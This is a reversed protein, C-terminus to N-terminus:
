KSVLKWSFHSVRTKLRLMHLQWASVRNSQVVVSLKYKLQFNVANKHHYDLHYVENFHNRTSLRYIQVRM